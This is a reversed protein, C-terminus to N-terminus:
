EEKKAHKYVRQLAIAHYDIDSVKSSLMEANSQTYIPFIVAEEVIMKEADYLREWRAEPDTCFEGTTCQEIIHDYEENSWKGYNKVADTTWIALYTMPDAYDPGWRTLGLQFNGESMDSLRQKKPEVVINITLGPLATEWEEKLVQAVKQPVEDADVVLDLKMSSVGLESLGANWCELAAATDDRLFENYKTQDESFDSGDPGTAFDPPIISYTPISGDNLVKDTISKRDIAYSLAHRINKNSLEPVGAVNPSVYWLFGQGITMYDPDEKVQDIMDGSLIITDVGGTEYYMLAQQSDQIVQYFLGEVNVKESDYYKENKVLSIETASPEYTELIFAGNSLVTSPGTAYKGNCSNYFEENVPYYTPFYLLSLFYSVPVNLNVELTYDDLAKVGLESKDKEGAVIEAANVIQGIDSIIFSYESALDPDVARQWGFVFDHATVPAGNSWKADKRLHFIYQCGDESIEYSEAIACVASGDSDMQMLGDTFDGIVEISIADTAVQADISEVPTELMVNITESPDTSSFSMSSGCSTSSLIMALAVALGVGKKIIRM